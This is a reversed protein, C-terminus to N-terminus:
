VPAGPAARFYIDYETVSIINPTLITVNEDPDPQTTDDDFIPYSSFILTYTPVEFTTLERMDLAVSFVKKGDGWYFTTPTQVPDVTITVTRPKNASIKEVMEDTSMKGDFSALDRIEDAIKVLTSEKILLTKEM